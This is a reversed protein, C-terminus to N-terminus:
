EGVIEHPLDAPLKVGLNKMTPGNVLVKLNEQHQIPMDEPKAKGELIDAAMNGAIEGLKYYDIALTAFAGEKVPGSEGAFVPLKVPETIKILVPVASAVTNDTPMYVVDVKGVLSQAAQQIDNVSSVTAERVEIGKKKAADKLLDIQHQSNVESSSYLAGVKKTEPYIKLILDLVAPIPAMDTTGTVNTGPKENSNVLKAVEFDTVATAVIPIKDTAHAMSQAAPTSIAGILDVKSLLFRQGINQLNSQDAQANQFDFKVNKDKIFGRQELANIFGDRASDLAEHEVLQVVGVKYVKQATPQSSSSTTSTETPNKDDWCGTLALTALLATAILGITLKKM